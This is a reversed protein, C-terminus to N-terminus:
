ASAMTDAPLKSMVLDLANFQNLIRKLEELIAEREILSLYNPNALMEAIEAFPQMLLAANIERNQKFLEQSIEEIQSLVIFVLARYSQNRDKSLTLFSKGLESLTASAQVALDEHGDRLAALASNKITLLPLHALEPSNKALYVDLRALTKIMEEAIPDLEEKLTQTYAWELRKTIHLTLYKIRDLLSPFMGKQTTNFAQIISTAEGQIFSEAMPQVSDLALHALYMSKSHITKALVEFSTDLWVFAEKENGRKSSQNCKKEMEHMLFDSIGFQLLRRCYLVLLDFSAGAIFLSVLIYTLRANPTEFSPFIAVLYSLFTLAFLAILLTELFIDKIFIEQVRPIGTYEAAQLRNWALFTAIFAIFLFLTSAWTLLVPILSFTLEKGSTLLGMVEPNFVIYLSGLIAFVIGFM